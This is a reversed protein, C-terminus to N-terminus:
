MTGTWINFTKLTRFHSACNMQRSRRHNVEVLLGLWGTKFNFFIMKPKGRM